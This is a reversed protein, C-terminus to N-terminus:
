FAIRVSVALGLHDNPRLSVRIQDLPVTQWRDSKSVAGIIAGLGAGAVLGISGLYAAGVLWGPEPIDPWDSGVIGGVIAGAALGVAGGILAGSATNSKQGRSVELRTISAFPIAQSDRDELRLVLTDSSLKEITGTVRDPSYVRVRAGPVVLTDQACLEGVVALFIVFILSVIRPATM